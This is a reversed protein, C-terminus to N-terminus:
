RFITLVEKIIYKMDDENYRQDCPLPLINNAFNYELSNKDCKDLVEPWLIPIYIKRQQLKKRIKQGDEVLLPYMFAGNPVNINLKNLFILKEHLFEFNRTRKESIKEYNLSRLFNHTLKSMCKIDENEFLHNNKVSENYYDSAKGEFRGLIHSMRNLSIDIDFKEDLKVNTYLYAGDPVGFYKRCTYLTDIGEIPEVFFAQSNDIIVNNYKKKINNIKDLPIQGYYNVIYIIENESLEKEFIPIFNVDINYTEYSVNVKTCVKAVSNCLFEPLYIKKYKKAKLLYALANRGCNLAIAQQHFEQGDYSELEIYGGIEKM